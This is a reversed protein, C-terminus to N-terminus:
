IEKDHNNFYEKNFQKHFNRYVKKSLDELEADYEKLYCVFYQIYKNINTMKLFEIFNNRKFKSLFKLIKKFNEKEYDLKDFKKTSFLLFIKYFYEDIQYIFHDEEERRKKEEKAKDVIKDKTKNDKKKNNKVELNEIEIKIYYTEKKIENQKEKVEEKVEKTEKKEEKEKIEEEEKNQVNIIKQNKIKPENTNGNENENNSKNHNLLLLSIKDDNNLTLLNKNIIIDNYNKISEINVNKKESTIQNEEGAKSSSKPSTQNNNINNNKNNKTISFINVKNNQISMVESKNILNNNLINNNIKELNKPELHDLTYNIKKIQIKKPNNNIQPKDNYNINNNEIPMYNKNKLSKLDSDAAKVAGLLKKNKKNAEIIKDKNEEYKLLYKSSLKAYSNDSYFKITYILSESFDTIIAPWWPYGKIKGWVIEGIEFFTNM